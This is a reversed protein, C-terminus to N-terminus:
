EIKTYTYMVKISLIWKTSILAFPFTKNYVNTVKLFKLSSVCLNRIWNILMVQTLWNVKEEQGHASWYDEVLFWTTHAWNVRKIRFNFCCTHAKTIVNKATSGSLNNGKPFWSSLFSVLNVFFFFFSISFAQMSVCSSLCCQLVWLLAEKCFFFASYM